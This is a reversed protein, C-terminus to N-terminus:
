RAKVDQELRNRNFYRENYMEGLETIEDHLLQCQKTWKKSPILINVAEKVMNLEVKEVRYKKLGSLNKELALILTMEMPCDLSELTDLVSVKLPPTVMPIYEQIHAVGIKELLGYIRDYLVEIKLPTWPCDNELYHLVGTYIDHAIASNGFEANELGESIARKLWTTEYNSLQYSGVQLIPLKSALCIM